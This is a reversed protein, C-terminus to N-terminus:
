AYWSDSPLTRSSEIKRAVGLMGYGHKRILLSMSDEATGSDSVFHYADKKGIRLETSSHTEVM